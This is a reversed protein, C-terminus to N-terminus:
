RAKVRVRIFQTSGASTVATTRYVVREMGGGMDVASGVQSVGSTTWTRRDDSKEVIYTIGMDNQFDSNYQMFSIYERGDDVKVPAPLNGRADSGLSDGGFAREIVNPVGDGDSAYNDSNFLALAKEGGIGLKAQIRALADTKVGEYRADAKREEFFVSKSPKKIKVTRSVSQATHYSANGSQAATIQFTLENSGAEFGKFKGDAGNNSSKQNFVLKAGVGSLVSNTQDIIKQPDSTITFTIDLNSTAKFMKGIEIPKRSLPLDRLGFGGSGGDAVLIAQGSKSSDVTVTISATKPVYRKTTDSNTDSVSVTVRFSGTGTGTSVTNGSVSANTTGTVSNTISFSRSISTYKTPDILKGTTGDKLSVRAKFTESAGMTGGGDFLVVLPRGVLKVNFSRAEPLAARYAYNGPQRATVTVNGAGQINLTSGSVTIISTDNSEFVVALGSSATASATISSVSTNTDAIASFSITQSDKITNFSRSKSTANYTANGAQSATITVPGEDKITATTGNVEVIATNNSEFSVTLGSSATASLTFTQGDTNNRDPLAAFTIFQDAKAVSFTHSVDEAALYTLNSNSPDVGGSQSATITVTGLANAAITLTSGSITAISTDSSAYTVALGSSATANLTINRASTSANQDPIAAFDITQSRDESIAITLTTNTAASFHSDGAQSITITASGAGKPDLKGTTADVAIVSTNSSSYSLPLGSTAYCGYDELRFLGIDISLTPTSSVVPITNGSTVITQSGGFDPASSKFPHGSPLNATSGWKHALYGEMRKITYDPLDNAYLLVEYVTGTTGTSGHGLTLGSADTAVSFGTADASGSLTLGKDSGNLKFEGKDFNSGSKKRWVGVSKATYFNYSGAQSVSSTYGIKGNDNLRIFNTASSSGLGLIQKDNSTADAVIIATFGPNGTLSNPLAGGM